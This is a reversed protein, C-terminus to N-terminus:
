YSGADVDDRVGQIIQRELCERGTHFQAVSMGMCEIEARMHGYRGGM